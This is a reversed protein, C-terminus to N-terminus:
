WLNNVIQFKDILDNDELIDVIECDLAICLACLTELRAGDISRTRNEYCQISRLTVGSLVSLQKQSLGKKVRLQQLKISYDLGKNERIRMAMEPTIGRSM